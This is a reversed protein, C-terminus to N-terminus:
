CDKISLTYHTSTFPIIFISILNHKRRYGKGKAYLFDLLHITHQVPEPLEMFTFFSHSRLFSVVNKKM